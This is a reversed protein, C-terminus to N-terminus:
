KAKINSMIIIQCNYKTIPVATKNDIELFYDRKVSFHPISFFYINFFLM